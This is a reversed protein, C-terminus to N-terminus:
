FYKSKVNMDFTDTNVYMYYEAFDPGFPITREMLSQRVYGITALHSKYRYLTTREYIKSEKIEDMSKSDLLRIFEKFGPSLNIGKLGKSKLEINRREITKIIIESGLLSENLTKLTFENVFKLFHLGLYQVLITSFLANKCFTFGKRHYNELEDDLVFEAADAEHETIDLCFDSSQTQSKKYFEKERSYKHLDQLLMKMAENYTQYGLKILYLNLKAPYKKVEVLRDIKAQIADYKLALKKIKKYESDKAKYINRKYIYNMGQKKYEVEYRLTRDAFIQLENINYKAYSKKKNIDMLGKKDSEGNRIHNFESGKHYIKLTYYRGVLYISTDYGFKSKNVGDRQGKKHVSKLLDLYDLCDKKSLFIRNFCFDLRSVEIDQMSILHIQSDQMKKTRYQRETVVHYLCQHLLFKQIFHVLRRHTKKIQNKIVVSESLCFPTFVDLRHNVFQFINTGYIAKPISFEFSIKDNIKDWTYNIYRSSSPIYLRGKKINIIKESQMDRFKLINYEKNMNRANLYGVMQSYRDTINLIDFHITDIM